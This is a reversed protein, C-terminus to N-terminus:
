EYHTNLCTCSCQVCDLVLILTVHFLHIYQYSGPFTWASLCFHPEAHVHPRLGVIALDAAALRERVEDFPNSPPSIRVLRPLSDFGDDDDNVMCLLARGLESAGLEEESDFRRVLARLNGCDDQLEWKCFMEMLPLLQMCASRIAHHSPAHLQPGLRSWLLHGSFFFGMAIERVVWM